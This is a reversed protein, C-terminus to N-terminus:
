PALRAQMISCYWDIFQNPGAETEPSFPGPEFAPSAVGRSAEEVVRQDEQNTATWVKILDDLDYDKGEVADKHTLWKTTLLTENPGLPLVRFSIAHDGLFHNWTSPYHFLLLAGLNCGNTDSLPKQVAPAGSMTYSETGQKLPARTLRFQGERDLKLRSPFGAAECRQWHATVASEQDSAEIGAVTPNEVFSRLLEPHNAGCHYCERNNEIVLKWNGHEVISSEYAVKTNELNHPTLYPEVSERFIDFDRPTRSLSVFIYSSVTECHVRKLGYETRDLAAGMNRASLLTGDLGYTWQHYPCVLRRAKGKEQTCVRSGRHRCVNHFAHVAGDQGRVILIPYRGIQMTMYKGPADLEFTHGAFIWERHFIVDLDAEYFDPDVYFDRPLPHMPKRTGLLTRVRDVPFM